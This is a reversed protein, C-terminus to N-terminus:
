HFHSIGTIGPRENVSGVRYALICRVLPAQPRKVMLVKLGNPLIKEIVQNTLSLDQSWLPALLGLALFVLTVKLLRHRM